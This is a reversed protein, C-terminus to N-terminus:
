FPSLVEMEKINMRRVQRNRTGYFLTEDKSAQILSLNVFTSIDQNREKEDLPKREDLYRLDWVLLGASNSGKGGGFLLDNMIHM